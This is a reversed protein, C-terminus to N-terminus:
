CGRSGARVHPRSGQSCRPLSPQCIRDGQPNCRCDGPFSETVVLTLSLHLGARYCHGPAQLLFGRSTASIRCHYVSKDETDVFAGPSAAIRLVTTALLHGSTQWRAELRRDIALRKPARARAALKAGPLSREHVQDLGGKADVGVHAM